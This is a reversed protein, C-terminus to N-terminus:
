MRYGVTLGYTMPNGWFKQNFFNATPTLGMVYEKDGCNKCWAQVRWHEDVSDWRISSDWLWFDGTLAKPHNLVGDSFYEDEYNTSVRFTVPGFGTPLAYEGALYIDWEPARSMERYTQDEDVIYSNAANPPTPLLEVNGGCNSTPVTAYVSPGNLDACFEDYEADLYGITSELTLNEIPIWVAELELGYTTAEGISQNATEQGTPNEASPIFVGFQLSDYTTYFATANLRLSGDLWDSKVGIEYSESEEDDTPGATLNTSARAGFEGAKFGQAYSVYSLVNDLFRYDYVLRISTNDSDLDGVVTMPQKSMFKLSPRTSEDYNAIDGCGNPVAPNGCLIGPNREFDKSEDTYRIGFTLNSRDNLAYIAQGFIAQSDNDQHAYDASSPTGLTPFSQVIEHEQEFYYLGLVVDLNALFDDRDSWDSQARLEQSRQSHTQERFTPFFPIETQDFDSAIFDDTDIWGTISTFVVSGVDWNMILTGGDQDTEAFELADRGVTFPDKDPEGCWNYVFPNCMLQLPFNPDSGDDNDAEGGPATSNENLVHYIFTADFNETPTFALTGRVVDLDEGNLDDGNVRNEFHGDYNQLLTSIRASLVENVIPFELAARYDERGYNGGTFEGEFGFEGDPRKTTMNIGGALSNKGFTTGQPGRLVEVKDVDFLDILTAIPRAIFVGNISIGARMENTSEIDQGGMGRVHVAASNQFTVVPQIHFNPTIPGVDRLDQATIKELTLESFATVALPADQVSEERYRATVVVEEIASTEAAQEAYGPAAVPVLCATLLIRLSRPQM